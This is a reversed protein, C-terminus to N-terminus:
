SNSVTRFWSPYPAYGQVVEGDQYIAVLRFPHSLDDNDFIWVHPLRHIAQRLNEITRPYRSILKDSPVDHGGQSVRMTVRDESIAPGSVGTFCLVVAYGAEACDKLFSAKDGAPDSFVTEFVFSERQTLLERRIADAVRAAEYAGIALERAISDANVFRLGASSLQSFYFTTKGAGNPGAVAVVIPRHDLLSSLATLSAALM